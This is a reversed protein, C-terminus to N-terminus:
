CLFMLHLLLLVFSCPHLSLCKVVVVFVLPAGGGSGVGALKGEDFIAGGPTTHQACLFKLHPWTSKQHSIALVRSFRADTASLM